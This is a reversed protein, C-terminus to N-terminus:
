KISKYSKHALGGATIVGGIWSFTDIVKQMWEPNYDWIGIVVQSLFAVIFLIVAGITTKYGDLLKWVKTM